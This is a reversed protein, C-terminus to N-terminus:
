DCGGVPEATDRFTMWGDFNGLPSRLDADIHTLNRGVLCRTLGLTGNITGVVAGGIEEPAVRGIDFFHILVIQGIGAAHRIRPSIIEIRKLIDRSYVAAVRFVHRMQRHDIRKGLTGFLATGLHDHGGTGIGFHAAFARGHLLQNRSIAIYARTPSIQIRELPSFTFLNRFQLRRKIAEVIGILFSHEVGAIRKKAAFGHRQTLQEISQAFRIAARNASFVHVHCVLALLAPPLLFEFGHAALRLERGLFFQMDKIPQGSGFAQLPKQVGFIDPLLTEGQFTTLTEDRGHILQDLTAATNTQLLNHNAHRM